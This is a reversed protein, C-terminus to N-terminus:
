ATPRRLIFTLKGGATAPMNRCVHSFPEANCLWGTEKSVPVALAIKLRNPKEYRQAVNQVNTAFHLFFATCKM